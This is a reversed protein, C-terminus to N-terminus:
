VRELVDITQRAVRDWNAETEVIHRGNGGLQEALKKDTLLKVIAEAVARPDNPDVLLGTVGDTVAEQVGGHRGAVVPKGCAAAELLSLGFGEVFDGEQRSLMAYVDCAHYYSAKEAESVFGVFIVCSVLDLDDVHRRLRREDEGRGAIVLMVDPVSSLVTPLSKIVVDIGKRPTLRCLSLVIRKHTLNHRSIIRESQSPDIRWEKPEVGLPIAVVKHEPVGFNILLKKTYNSNSLVIPARHFVKTAVKRNMAANSAILVDTGHVTVAYPLHFMASVSSVVIGTRWDAAWLLSPRHTLTYKILSKLRAAHRIPTLGCEIVRYIPFSQTNDFSLDDATKNAAIVAISYQLAHIARAMYFCYTGVGGTAPPFENTLLIIM